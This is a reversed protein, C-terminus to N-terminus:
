ACRAANRGSRRWLAPLRTPPVGTAPGEAPSMQRQPARGVQSTLQVSPGRTKAKNSLCRGLPDAELRPGPEDDAAPRDAGLGDLVIETSTQKM